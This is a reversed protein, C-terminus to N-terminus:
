KSRYHKGKYGTWMDFSVSGGKERREDDEEASYFVVYSMQKLRVFGAKKNLGLTRFLFQRWTGTNIYLVDYDDGAALTQVMPQHTHGYLIFRIAQNESWCPEAYAAAAHGDVEEDGVIQQLGSRAQLSGLVLAAVGRTDTARLALNTLFRVANNRTSRVLEDSFMGPKKWEQIFPINILKRIVEDLADEMLGGVNKNQLTNIGEKSLQEYHEIRQDYWDLIRSVPRINDVDQVEKVLLPSAGLQELTYPLRVAFETALVDGVPVILHDARSYAPTGQYNYPDYQHGHRAYVGYKEDVYEYSYWWQGDAERVVFEDDTALGLMDRLRDRLSPYLNCLRDHNGPVYIVKIPIDYDFREGNQEGLRPHQKCFERFREAFKRIFEFTEFNQHFITKPRDARNAPPQYNPEYVGLIALCRKETESGDKPGKEADTRGNAGWPRNLDSLDGDLWQASRILDPIDGLLLLRIEKAKKHAAMAAIQALFVDAFAEVPLNHDGATSDVFHLDSLVVLM